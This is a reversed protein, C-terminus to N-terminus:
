SGGNGETRRDGIPGRHGASRPAAALRAVGCLDDLTTATKDLVATTHRLRSQETVDHPYATVVVVPIRRLVDDADLASLVAFGDLEALRLDLLLLDPPHAAISALATRGDAAERVAFGCSRLVHGAATRFAEDDDVLLVLTQAPEGTEGTLAGVPLRVTFRSGRGIESELDLTGGLVEVLRRAYPLGLGTGTLKAQLAHRVQYFEEFVRGQEEPPIGIGTDEVTLSVVDNEYAASLRVEGSPTFKLANTLLNRLVQALMIPDTRLAPVGTPEQVVLDTGEATPVARLTGRLTDFIPKLDVDEPSPQLRGSEAKALDLLENVLTLLNRGSDELLALQHAQNETLPDSAPDRLLRALGTISTVPSRLEHTVNALFRTKAESAARLESTRQDLEAYLAVVGRNTAELEESLESYLAMVGRNTDALEENLRLLEDRHAQVEGLTALLQRNHEALEQLPTGAATGAIDAQIASLDAETLGAPQPIRRSMTVETRAPSRTIEWTDMLNRTLAVGAAFEDDTEAEVEAQFRLLAHQRVPSADDPLDVEFAVSVRGFALLRRGVESVAAAIRIQDQNELGVADALHRAQRRAQFVDQESSVQTRHVQYVTM